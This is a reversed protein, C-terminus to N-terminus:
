RLRAKVRAHHLPHDLDTQGGGASVGSLTASDPRSSTRGSAVLDLWVCRPEAEHAPCRDSARVALTLTHTGFALRVVRVSGDTALGPRFSNRALITLGVSRPLDLAVPKVLRVRFGEALILLSRRVSSFRVGTACAHSCVPRIIRAAM